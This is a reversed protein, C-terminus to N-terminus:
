NRALRGALEESKAEVQLRYLMLFAYFVCVLVLGALVPILFETPMAPKPAGSEGVKFMTSPQHLTRWWKVSVHILPIDLFGIIGLVAALRAQKEGPDAFARVLVYGVYILFLILSTTLRADWVWYAGWTPKGWIAGTVLILGAFVVGIEASCKAVRDWIPERKWLYGISCVFVVFFALYAGLITPLHLYMIKQSFKMGEEIPTVGFVVLFLASFGIVSLWGLAPILM